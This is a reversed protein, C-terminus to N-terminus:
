LDSVSLQRESGPSNPRAFSSLLMRRNEHLSETLRHELDAMRSTLPQSRDIVDGLAVAADLKTQQLIDMEFRSRSLERQMESLEGRLLRSEKRAAARESQAQKLEYRLEKATREGSSRSSKLSSQLREMKNEHSSVKSHLDVNERRLSSNEAESEHLKRELLQLDKIEVKRKLQARLQQIVADKSASLEHLQRVNETEAQISPIAAAVSRKRMAVNRGEMSAMSITSIKRIRSLLGDDSSGGGGEANDVNILPIGAAVSLQRMRVLDGTSVTSVKRIRTLLGDNSNGEGGEGNDVDILPIGAAISLQRMRVLSGTSITSVKRIPRLLVHETEGEDEGGGESEADGEGGVDNGGGSSLLALVKLEEHLQREHLAKLAMSVEPHCAHKVILENLLARYDRQVQLLIRPISNLLDGKGGDSEDDDDDSSSDEFLADVASMEFPAIKAGFRELKAHHEKQVNQVEAKFEPPISDGHEDLFLQLEIIHSFFEDRLSKEQHHSKEGPADKQSKRSESLESQLLITETEMTKKEMERQLSQARTNALSLAQRLDHSVNVEADLEEKLDAFSKSKSDLEAQLSQIERLSEGHKRSVDALERKTTELIMTKEENKGMDDKFTLGAMDAELANMKETMERRQSEAHEQARELARVLSSKEALLDNVINAQKAAQQKLQITTAVEGELEAELASMRSAQSDIESRLRSESRTSRALEEQASLIAAKRQREEAHLKECRENARRLEEEMRNLDEKLLVERFAEEERERERERDRSVKPVVEEHVAKEAEVDVGPKLRERLNQAQAELEQVVIEKEYKISDREREVNALLSERHRANEKLRATRQMEADLEVSLQERSSKLASIEQKLMLVAAEQEAEMRAAAAAAEKLVRTEDAFERRAKALNQQLVRERELTESLRQELASVDNGRDGESDDVVKREEEVMKRLMDLEADKAKLTTSLIHISDQHSTREGRAKMESLKMAEDQNDIRKISERLRERVTALEEETQSLSSELGAVSLQARSLDSEKAHLTTQAANLRLSLEKNQEDVDRLSEVEMQASHLADKLQKIDQAFRNEMSRHHKQAASRILRLEKMNAQKVMRLQMSLKQASDVAKMRQAAQDQSDQAAALLQEEAADAKRQLHLIDDELNAITARHTSSMKSERELAERLSPITETMAVTQQMQLEEVKSELEACREGAEAYHKAMEDKMKMRLDVEAISLTRKLASCEDKYRQMEETASSVKRSAELTVGEMEDMYTELQAQLQEAEQKSAQLQQVLRQNEQNEKRLNAEIGRHGQEQQKYKKEAVALKAQVQEAEEKSAQLQQLLRQNEQNEMRLSNEIGLNDVEQQKCKEEAKALKAQLQEAAQNSAELRNDVDAKLQLTKDLEAQIGELQEASSQIGEEELQRCKEEAKALKAQLQETEEKSAELQNDVDAKLQLTKDLEARISELQEASSQIGEEEVQMVTAQELERRLTSITNELNENKAKLADMAADSEDMFRDAKNVVLKAREAFRLSSLTEAENSSSPSVNCIMLTFSNGGLSDQLLRTLTSDRYPIHHHKTSSSSSTLAKVVNGLASLSKNIAAGEKLRAGTAGTNAQRESGALDILSLKSTTFGLAGGKDKRTIHLVLVAHSRSSAENMKTSAKTRREFGTALLAQIDDHSKVDISEAGVMQITRTKKDERLHINGHQDTSLLDHIRENYIEIYQARVTIETEEHNEEIFSFLEQTLRPIIGPLGHEGQMTYTKGSSTQGYAFICCNFGDLAKTLLPQATLNYAKKQTAKEGLVADFRFERTESFKNHVVLSDEGTVIVCSKASESLEKRNLPRVRVVVLVSSDEIIKTLKRAKIAQKANNAKAILKSVVSLSVNHDADNAGHFNVTTSKRRHM